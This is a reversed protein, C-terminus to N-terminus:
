AALTRLVDGMPLVTVGSSAVNSLLTTLQAPTIDNGSGGSSVIKHLCISGWGKGSAIRTMATAIQSNQSGANVSQLKYPNAPHQPEIHSFLASRGTSFFKAVDKEVALSRSGLPYAFSTSPFGHSDNWARIAELEALRESQTMAVLGQGHKVGTTAHGGIEWGYDYHLSLVQDMTLNGPAGIQDIIPYLTARWGYEDLRPRLETWQSGFSDDATLSVVGTQFQGTHARRVAAVGAIDMTVANGAVDNFSFRIANITAMNTGGTLAANPVELVNWRGPQIGFGSLDSVGGISYLNNSFGAFQADMLAVNISSIAAGATAGEYWFWIRLDDSTMDINTPPTIIVGSQGGTGTSVIRASTGGFLVRATSAFNISAIGAGGNSTWAGNARPNAPTFMRTVPAAPLRPINLRSATKVPAVAAAIPAAAETAITASLAANIGSEPESFQGTLYEQVWSRTAADDLDPLVSDGPRPGDSGNVNFGDDLDLLDIQAQTFGAKPLSWGNAQNWVTAAM